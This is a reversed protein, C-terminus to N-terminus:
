PTTRRRSLALGMLGLGLLALTGPEPVQDPDCNGDECKRVAWEEFGDNTTFCRETATTTAPTRGRAPQTVLPGSLDCPQWGFTSYMVFYDADGYGAFLSNPVLYRLDYTRGSGKPCAGLIGVDCVRYDLLLTQDLDGFDLSWILDLDTGAQSVMGTADFGTPAISYHDAADGTGSGMFLRIADLSLLEEGANQNIDLLIERYTVGGFTVLPILGLQLSNTFGGPGPPNIRKMDLADGNGDTVDQVKTDTNFGAEQEDNGSAQLTLFPEILGTGVSYPGSPVQFLVTGASGAVACSANDIPTPGSQGTGTGFTETTFDCVTSSVAFAPASTALLGIASLLGALLSRDHPM